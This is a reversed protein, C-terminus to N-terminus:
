VEHTCFVLCLFENTCKKKFASPDLDIEFSFICWFDGKIDQAEEHVYIQMEQALINCHTAKFGGNCDKSTIKM